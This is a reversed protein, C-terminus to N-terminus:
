EMFNGAKAMRVACDQVSVGTHDGSPPLRMTCAVPIGMEVMTEIAWEAEEVKKFFQQYEFTFLPWNTKKQKRKVKKKM